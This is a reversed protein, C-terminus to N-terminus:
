AEAEPTTEPAAAEEVEAEAETETVEAAEASPEEVDDARLLIHRLVRDSLRLNRELEATAFPELDLQLVVYYGEAFTGIQYALRRRGWHDVHVVKGRSDEVWKEIQANLTNFQEEDVDSAVIYM